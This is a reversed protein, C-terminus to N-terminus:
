QISDQGTETPFAKEASDIISSAGIIAWVDFLAMVVFSIYVNEFLFAVQVMLLAFICGVIWMAFSNKKMRFLRIALFVMNFLLLVLFVLGVISLWMFGNYFSYDSFSLLNKYLFVLRVGLIISFLIQFVLLHSVISGTNIKVFSHYFPQLHEKYPRSIKAVQYFVYIYAFFVIITFITLSLSIYIDFYNDNMYNYSTGRIIINVIMVLAIVFLLRSPSLRKKKKKVEQLPKETDPYIDGAFIGHYCVPGEPDQQEMMQPEEPNEASPESMVKEPAPKVKHPELPTDRQNFKPCSSEDFIPTRAFFSCKLAGFSGVKCKTCQRCEEEKAM